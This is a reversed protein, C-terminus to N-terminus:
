EAHNSESGTLTWLGTESPGGQWVGNDGYLLEDASATLPKDARKGIGELADLADYTESVDVDHHRELAQVFLTRALESFSQGKRQSLVLLRQHLASPLYLSTRIM